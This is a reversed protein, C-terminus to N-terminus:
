SLFALADAIGLDVLQNIHKKSSDFNWLMPSEISPSIVRVKNPHAELLESVSKKWKNCVLIIEDHGDSLAREVPFSDSLNGDAYEQGNIVVKPHLYPVAASARVQLFFDEAIKPSFYHAAGSQCHTAVLYMKMPSHFLDELSLKYKESRLVDNLYFLDLIPQGARFINYWRMLLQGYLCERWIAEITDPQGSALYSGTYAGASCGYIADFYDRGLKRGLTAVVGGGYAGSLGGPGLILARSM